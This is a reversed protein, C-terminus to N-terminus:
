ILRFHRILMSNIIISSKIILFFIQRSKSHKENTITKPDISAIISIRDNFFECWRGYYAPPCLCITQDKELIAVGRNCQYSHATFTSDDRSNFSHRQKNESINESPFHRILFSNPRNSTKKGIRYYLQDRLSGYTCWYEDEGHLCDRVGNCRTNKKCQNDELCIFITLILARDM